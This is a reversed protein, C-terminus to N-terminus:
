INWFMLICSQTMSIKKVSFIENYLNINNELKFKTLLNKYLNLSPEFLDIKKAKDKYLLLNEGNGPGVEVVYDGINKLIFENQYKRFNNSKDFFILEWGLYQNIMKM